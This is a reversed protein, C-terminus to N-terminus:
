CAEIWTPEGCSKKERSISRPLSQRRNDPQLIPEFVFKGGLQFVRSDWASNVQGFNGSGLTTNLDKFETHNFTDFSEFRLDFYHPEGVTETLLIEADSIVAM